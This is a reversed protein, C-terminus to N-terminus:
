QLRRTQRCRPYNSCGYFEGFRGRRLVLTGGCNNRPCPGGSESASSAGGDGGSARVRRVGGQTRTRTTRRNDTTGGCAADECQFYIGFRGDKWVTPGGCRPCGPNTVQDVGGEDRHLGAPPALFRAVQSCASPSELRLMSEHTDRHSLINLSGHWLVRGDLIAIKEHMRTRLDVNIGVKRFGDILESVEEATGGGAESGPRTLVRVAVGRLAAARLADVWRGAGAVTAFPSLIVISRKARALDHMFAPYFTGETFAGAAGDPLEFSAPLVRHLGDIWDRESLPLLSELELPMGNAQFWDIMTTVIAGRPAKARLYEFNGILVVHHKARSAAVNLLRAGDEDRRTVRLFHGLPAGLSDTLDIIMARKENGQFRHVTAAIGAAREGLRDELLSQILRSQAAYPAVAGIRDNAGIAKPLYGMADLHLVLNRVIIAQLLNYRSFSGAKLATWPHFRSTDVFLLPSEGLAFAIRDSEVSPHSRLPSDSYFLRNICECIPVRMRYQTRLAVLHPVAQGRSLLDPIGAKEFVDQKLWELAAGEKSMVIPPLQRFDGAVTVARSALGAAYYVLPPMLMSAEDVIVIDFQQRVAQKLYTRYVTTALIRCRSLVQQEIGALERDIAAIRERLGRLAENIAGLRSRIELAAPLGRTAQALQQIEARLPGLGSEAASYEKALAEAADLCSQAARDATAIGRRIQEPNLGSLFRRVAGMSEARGLDARLSSARARHAAAEDRRSQCQARVRNAQGEAAALRQKGGEFTEITRLSASLSRHESELPAVRNALAAREQHLSAGLRAVIKELQVQESWKHALEEKVVPGQRIVLGEHFVPEGKLREAVAQLATDVAINTNSVLLVSQGARYHAEVVRALTTTKGTGPPGWVFTADSGMSRCVAEVQGDNLSGDQLVIPDVEGNGSHIPALGLVRDAAARNFEGEGSQVKTLREKLRELLFSDNAVLLARAIKPGLNQDLAVLLVGDRLSVVVGSVDEQECTVRVPSDDRLNLDEALVFRYLWSGEAEGALEGGRLDVRAGGGRKRIAAIELDLASIMEPLADSM